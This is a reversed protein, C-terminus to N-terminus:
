AGEKTFTLGPFCQRLNRLVTLPDLADVWGWPCIIRTYSM